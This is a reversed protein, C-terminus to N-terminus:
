QSWRQDSNVHFEFVKVEGGGWEFFDIWVEEGFKRTVLMGIM